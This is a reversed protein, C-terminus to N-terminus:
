AQIFHPSIYVHSDYRAFAIIIVMYIIVRVLIVLGQIIRLVLRGLLLCLGHVLIPGPVGPLDDGPDDDDQGDDEDEDEDGDEYASPVEAGDDIFTLSLNCLRSFNIKTFM